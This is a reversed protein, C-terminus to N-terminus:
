YMTTRGERDRVRGGGGVLWLREVYSLDPAYV